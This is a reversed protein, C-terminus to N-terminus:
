VVQQTPSYLMEVMGRMPKWRRKFVAGVPEEVALEFFGYVPKNVLPQVAWAPSLSLTDPFQLYVKNPVFEEWVPDVDPTTANVYGTNVSLKYYRDVYFVVDERDYATAGNWAGKEPPVRVNLSTEVAGVFTGEPKEGSGEINQGEVVVAEYTFGADANTLFNLTVEFELAEGQVISWLVAGDDKQLDDQINGLRARAM